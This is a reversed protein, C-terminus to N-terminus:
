LPVMEINNIYKWTDSLIWKIDCVSLLVELIKVKLLIYSNNRKDEIFITETEQKLPDATQEAWKLHDPKETQTPNGTFQIMVDLVPRSYQDQQHTNKSQGGVPQGANPINM